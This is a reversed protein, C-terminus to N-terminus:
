EPLTDAGIQEQQDALHQLITKEFLKAEPSLRSGKRKIMYINWEMPPDKLPIARLHPRSLRRALHVTSIGVSHNTEALYYLLLINDVFTEIIPEFGEQNCLSRLYSYTRTSDRMVVLPLGKLERISLSARDALAHDKHVILAHASSFLRTADFLDLDVPGVTLALEVEQNEVAMDCPIDQSERIDLYIDKYREQFKAIPIGAFEEITGQSFMVSLPKGIEAGKSFYAECEEMLRVIKQARPLLFEAQPTLVIGLPTREFLKYNLEKELRLIAMSLGQPSIACAKAAKSIKKYLCIANFYVLQRIEVHKGERHSM